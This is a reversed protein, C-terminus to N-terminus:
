IFFEFPENVYTKVKIYQSYAGKLHDVGSPIRNLLQYLLKLDSIRMEDLMIDFGKQLINAVHDAILFKELCSIILTRTSQHLYHLLRNNEENFRKEVHKLYEPIELQQLLSEGEISYM